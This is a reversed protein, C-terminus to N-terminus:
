SRTWIAVGAPALVREGLIPSGSGLGATNSPANSYNFAFIHSATRRIRLGEPLKTLTVSAEEAMRALCRDLLEPSPWAALYRVSDSKVVVGGSQTAFEPALSTELDERWREISWGNGPEGAGDRLSEVRSVTVPLVDRLKGPALGEPIAFSHTKSGSRPGILVPCSLASLREVFGDPLIPLTPALVMPYASLDADPAVIDVDLGHRRLASYWQFALELYRFNAGQPQIDCVWAAEYSFVLAAQAPTPD